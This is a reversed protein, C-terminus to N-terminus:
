RARKCISLIKEGHKKLIAEGVGSIALLEEKTTPRAAAIRNLVRDTLIRFAPIHNKRALYLRWEKLKAVLKPSPLPETAARRQTTVGASRRTKSVAGSRKSTRKRRSRSHLDTLATKRELEGKQRLV